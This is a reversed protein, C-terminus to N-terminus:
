RGAANGQIGVAERVEPTLQPHVDVGSHQRLCRLCQLVLTCDGAERGIRELACGTKHSTDRAQICM